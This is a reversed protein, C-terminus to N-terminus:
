KSSYMLGLDMAKSFIESATKEDLNQGISIVKDILKSDCLDGSVGSLTKAKWENKEKYALSIIFSGDSTKEINIGILNSKKHFTNTIM